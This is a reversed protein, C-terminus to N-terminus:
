ESGNESGEIVEERLHLLRRLESIAGQIESIRGADKTKELNNRHDEIKDSVVGLFSSYVETSNVFILAKRAQSKLM